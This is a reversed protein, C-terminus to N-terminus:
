MWNNDFFDNFIDSLWNQTRRVSMMIKIEQKLNYM